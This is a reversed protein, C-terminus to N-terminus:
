TFETLVGPASSMEAALLVQLSDETLPVLPM